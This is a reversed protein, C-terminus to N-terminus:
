LQGHDAGNHGGRTPMRALNRTIIVYLVGRHFSVEHLVEPPLVPVELPSVVRYM